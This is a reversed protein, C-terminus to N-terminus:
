TILLFWIIFNPYKKSKSFKLIYSIFVLIKLDIIPIDKVGKLM